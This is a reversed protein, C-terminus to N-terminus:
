CNILQKALVSLAKIKDDIRKALGHTDSSHTFTIIGAHDDSQKHLRRFDHGLARLAEVVPFPVDEDAIISAM